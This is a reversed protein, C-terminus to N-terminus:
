HFSTDLSFPGPTFPRSKALQKRKLILWLWALQSDMEILGEATISGRSNEEQVSDHSPSILICRDIKCMKAVSQFTNKKSKESFYLLTFKAVKGQKKKYVSLYNSNYKKSCFIKMINKEFTGVKASVLLARSSGMLFDPLGTLRVMRDYLGLSILFSMLKLHVPSDFTEGKNTLGFMWAPPKVKYKKLIERAKAVRVAVDPIRLCHIFMENSELVLDNFVAATKHYQVDKKAPLENKKRM